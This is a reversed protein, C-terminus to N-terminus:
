IETQRSEKITAWAVRPRWWAGRMNVAPPLCSLRVNVWGNLSVLWSIGTLLTFWCGMFFFFWRVALFTAAPLALSTLVDGVVGGSSFYWIDDFNIDALGCSTFFLCWRVLYALAGCIVFDIQEDENRKRYWYRRPLGDGIYYATNAFWVCLFAYGGVMCRPLWRMRLIDGGWALNRGHHIQLVSSTLGCCFLITSLLSCGFWAASKSVNLVM